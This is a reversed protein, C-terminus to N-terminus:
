NKKLMNASRIFKNRENDNEFYVFAHTIPKAPCVLKVKEYDMGIEKIMEKLTDAVESETTEKHLGAIVTEGQNAIVSGNREDDSRNEYKKDLDMMKKEMDKFREDIKNFKNEGEEKMKENTEHLKVISSNMGQIQTGVSNTMFMFREMLDDAKKSFDIMKEENKRSYCEMKEDTKKLAEMIDKRLHAIDDSPKTAKGEKGEDLKRKKERDEETEHTDMQENVEMGGLLRMSMEITENADINNDKMSKKGNIAKGKHTLRTMDRPIATRREVEELIVAAKMSEYYCISITKKNITKVYITSNNEELVDDSMETNDAIDVFYEHSQQESQRRRILLSTHLISPGSQSSCSFIVIRTLVKNQCTNSRTMSVMSDLFSSVTVECGHQQEHRKYVPVLSFRAGSRARPEQDRKSVVARDSPEVVTPIMGAIWVVFRLSWAYSLRILQDTEDSPNMEDSTVGPDCHHLCTEGDDLDCAKKVLRALRAFRCRQLDAFRAGFQARPEQGCKSIMTRKSPEADAPNMGATLAVFRRSWVDSYWIMQETEESADLQARPEQDYISAVTRDRPEAGAPNMGATWFVSRRNLWDSYWTKQETEESTNTVDSIVVHDSRYLCTEGDDLDNAKKVLSALVAFRRQQESDAFRAGLQDRFKQDCKSAAARISPEVGAPNMGAICVVFRRSWVYSRWILQETEDSPNVVDSTVGPASRYLCTGGDELEFAKKVLNVNRTFRRQQGADVLRTGLQARLEQDFKYVVAWESPEAGAPNTGAIWVVFRRSWVDSYWIMKGTEDKCEHLSTM